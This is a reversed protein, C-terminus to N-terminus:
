KSSKQVIAEILKINQSIEAIIFLRSIYLKNIIIKLEWELSGIIRKIDEQSSTESIKKFYKLIAQLDSINFRELEMILVDPSEGFKDPIWFYLIQAIQAIIDSKKELDATISNPIWNM